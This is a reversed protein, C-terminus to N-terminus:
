AADIRREKPFCDMIKHVVKASSSNTAGLANEEEYTDLLKSAKARKM